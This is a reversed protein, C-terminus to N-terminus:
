IEGVLVKISHPCAYRVCKDSRLERELVCGDERLFGTKDNWLGNIQSVQEPSFRENKEGDEYWGKTVYCSACDCSFPKDPPCNLGCCPEKVLDEISMGLIEHKKENYTM